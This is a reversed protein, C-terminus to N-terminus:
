LVVLFFFTGPWALGDGWAIMSQAVWSSPLLPYRTFRSNRLIQDLAGIMQTEQLDAANIPRVLFICALLAMAGMGFLAWKFVRRHLYRTVILIVLSGLSAPIITFPLFLLFVKLYFLLGAQRALGYAVIMPASLFLFAWSALVS